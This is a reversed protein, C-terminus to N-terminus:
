LGRPKPPEQYLKLTLRQSLSEGLGAQPAALRLLCAKIHTEDAGGPRTEGPFLPPALRSALVLASLDLLAWKLNKKM